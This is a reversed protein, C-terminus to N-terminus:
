TLFQDREKSLASTECSYGPNVGLIHYSERHNTM